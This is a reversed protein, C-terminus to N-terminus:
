FSEAFDTSIFIHLYAYIFTHRDSLTQLVAIFVFLAIDNLKPVNIGCKWNIWASRKKMQTAFFIIPKM